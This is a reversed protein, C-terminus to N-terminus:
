TGLLTFYMTTLRPKSVMEACHSLTLHLSRETM